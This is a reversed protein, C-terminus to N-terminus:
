LPNQSEETDCCLPLSVWALVWNWYIILRRITLDRSTEFSCSKHKCNDSRESIQCAEWCCSFVCLMFLYLCVWSGMLIQTLLLESERTRVLETVLLSAQTLDDRIYEAPLKIAGLSCLNREHNYSIEISIVTDATDNSHSNLKSFM